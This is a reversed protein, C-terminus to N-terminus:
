LSLKDLDSPLTLKYNDAQGLVYNVPGILSEHLSSDDTYSALDALSLNQTAYNDILKQLNDLAFVQPTQLAVLEERKLRECASYLQRTDLAIDQKDKNARGFAAGHLRVITDTVPLAPIATDYLWATLLLRDILESAVQLRAADHIFVLEKYNTGAVLQNSDALPKATQLVTAQGNLYALLASLMSAERNCSGEALLVNAQTPLNSAMIAQFNAQEEAQCVLLFNFSFRVKQVELASKCAEIHADIQELDRDILASPLKSYVQKDLFPWIKILSTNHRQPNTTLDNAYNVLRQWLYSFLPRGNYEYLLKNKGAGFRSGSGAALLIFTLKLDM